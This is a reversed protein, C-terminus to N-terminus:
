VGLGSEVSSKPVIRGGSAARTYVRESSGSCIYKRRVSLEIGVDHPRRQDLTTHVHISRRGILRANSRIMAALKNTSPPSKQSFSRAFSLLGAMGSLLHCMFALGFVGIQISLFGGAQSVEANRVRLHKIMPYKFIVPNKCGSTPTDVAKLAAISNRECASAKIRSMLFRRRNVMRWCICLATTMPSFIPPAFGDPQHGM